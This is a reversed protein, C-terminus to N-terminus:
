IAGDGAIYRTGEGLLYASLGIGIETASKKVAEELAVSFVWNPNAWLLQLGISYSAFALFFIGVMTLVRGVFCSIKKCTSDDPASSVGRGLWDKSDVVTNFITHLGLYSLAAGSLVTKMEM